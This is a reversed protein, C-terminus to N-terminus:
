EDQYRVTAALHTVASGGRIWSHVYITCPVTGLFEFNFQFWGQENAVGFDIENTRALALLGLVPDM